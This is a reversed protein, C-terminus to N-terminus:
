YRVNLAPAIFNYNQRFGPYSSFGNRLNITNYVLAPQISLHENVKWRLRARASGKFGTRSVTQSLSPIAIIYNDDTPHRYFTSLADESEIYNGNLVANFSLAKSIPETYNLSVNTNLNEISNDRLQDLLENLPPLYFASSATNINENSNNSNQFNLSANFSRGAKKFDKWYSLLVDINDNDGNINSRTNAENVLQDDGNISRKSNQSVRNASSLTLRPEITITTLSDPKWELKGGFNHTLDINNANLDSATILREQGLTQNNNVLQLLNNDVKGFFYQGNIKIGSKTITNFNAGGGSSEQVGAATGGFSINNLSFGGDSNVMMSNIGSRGFGGIRQVDNVSFGPRNLNNSYALVSVQTTDRFFNMIGGTEYLERLGGGAYLKGFAGKKIAKKLKLNIVQPTNAAILDPDRRKAEKDDTVQVKDIINAPLNKTAVQQDGGFFEKGDVLIKSVDKGNVKLSGNRDYTVGPLKKLLDEVVASPLTKFSAANFEITDKRVIIPPIEATVVVEDLNNTQSALSISGLDLDPTNGTITFERRYSQYQWATIVLRYAQNTQLSNIKFIGKDDSLGYSTLTSDGKKYISVTSYSLTRQHDASDTLKGKISGKQAYSVLNLTIFALLLFCRKM